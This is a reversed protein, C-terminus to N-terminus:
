DQNRGIARLAGASRAEEWCSGELGQQGSERRTVARELSHQAVVVLECSSATCTGERSRLTTAQFQGQHSSKRWPFQCM